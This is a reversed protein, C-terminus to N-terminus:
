HQLAFLRPCRPCRVVWFVSSALFCLFPWFDVPHRHTHPTSLTQPWLGNFLHLIAWSHKWACVTVKSQQPFGNKTAPYPLRIFAFAASIALLLHFYYGITTTDSFTSFAENMWLHHCHMWFSSLPSQNLLHPLHPNRSYAGKLTQEGESGEIPKCLVGM